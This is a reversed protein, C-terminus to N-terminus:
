LKGIETNKAIFVQLSVFCMANWDFLFSNSWAFKKLMQVIPCNLVKLLLYSQICLWYDLCLNEILVDRLLRIYIYIYLSCLKIQRACFCLFQLGVPDLWTWAVYKVVCTRVWKSGVFFLLFCCESVCIAGATVYCWVMIDVRGLLFENVLYNFCPLRTM